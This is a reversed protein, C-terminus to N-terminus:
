ARSTESLFRYSQGARHSLEAAAEAVSDDIASALAFSSFNAYDAYGSIVADQGMIYTTYAAPAAVPAVCAPGESLLISPAVAAGVAGVGLWQLFKRRNV